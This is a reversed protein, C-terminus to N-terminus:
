QGALAQPLGESANPPQEELPAPIVLAERFFRGADKVDDFGDLVWAFLQPMSITEAAGSQQMVPLAQVALQFVKLRQDREVAPDYRPASFYSVEVDTEAAIEHADYSRWQSGLLGAIEVVNSEVRNAKLHQLVQRAIDTVGREVNSVK